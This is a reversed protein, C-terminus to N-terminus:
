TSPPHTLSHATPQPPPPARPSSLSMCAPRSSSPPLSPVPRTSSSVVRHNLISTSNLLSLDAVQPGRARQPVPMLAGNMKRHNRSLVNRDFPAPMSTPSASQLPHLLHLPHMREAPACATTTRLRPQVDRYSFSRIAVHSAGGISGGDGRRTETSAHGHVGRASHLPRPSALPSSPALRASCGQGRGAQCAVCWVSPLCPESPAPLLVQYMGGHWLCLHRARTHPTPSTRAGSAPVPLYLSMLRLRCM